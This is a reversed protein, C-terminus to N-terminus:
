GVDHPAAAEPARPAFWLLRPFDPHQTSGPFGGPLTLADETGDRRRRCVGGPGRAPHTPRIAAADALWSGLVERLARDHPAWASPGHLPAPDHLVGDVLTGQLPLAGGSAFLLTADARVAVDRAQRAPDRGWAAADIAAVIALTEPCDLRCPYHRAATAGALPSTFDLRRDALGGAAETARAARLAFYAVEALTAADNSTWGQHGAVFADTCCRPYGLLAAMERDNTAALDTPEHERRGAAHAAKVRLTARELADARTLDALDRGLYLLVRDPEYEHWLGADDMAVAAGRRVRIGHEAASRELEACRAPELDLRWVRRLGLEIAIWETAETWRPSGTPSKTSVELAGRPLSALWAPVPGLAPVEAADAPLLGRPWGAAFCWTAPLTPLVAALAALVDADATAGPLPHLEVYGVGAATAAAAAVALVDADEPGVRVVLGVCAADLGRAIVRAFAAAAQPLEARVLVATAGSALVLRAVDLRPVASADLELLLVRRACARSLAVAEAATLREAATVVLAAGAPVRPLTGLLRPGFGPGAAVRWRERARLASAAVEDSM